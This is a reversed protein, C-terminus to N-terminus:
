CTCILLLLSIVRGYKLADVTAVILKNEALTRTIKLRCCIRDQSILEQIASGRTFKILLRRVSNGSGM